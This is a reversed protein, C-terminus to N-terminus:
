ILNDSMFKGAKKRASNDKAIYRSTTEINEHGVALRTAEIDHGSAEYYLTIFTGRLKHPSISYGLARKTVDKVLNYIGSESLRGMKSGIFLADSTANSDKLIQERYELWENILNIVKDDLEYVLTKNRKDVVTLIKEKFDIDSVNIQILAGERMGTYMLLYLALYNRRNFKWMYVNQTYKAEDLVKNLEDMTLSKRKVVDKRKTREILSMPNDSILKKKCAYDFFKTLATHAVKKYSASTEVVKGNKDFKVSINEFYEGICTEDIRELPRDAFEFFWKLHQIYTLCTHRELNEMTRYFGNCYDPMDDLLNNIHNRIKIDKELRGKM